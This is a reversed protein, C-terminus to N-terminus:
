PKHRKKAEKQEYEEIMESIKKFEEPTLSDPNGDLMGKVHYYDGEANIKGRKLIRALKTSYQQRLETLTITNNAKLEADFARIKEGDWDYSMEISDNITMMVGKKANALSKEEMKAIAM